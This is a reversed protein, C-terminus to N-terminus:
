ILCYTDKPEDELELAMKWSEALISRLENGEDQDESGDECLNSLTIDMNGKLKHICKTMQGGIGLIYDMGYVNSDCYPYMINTDKLEVILVCFFRGTYYNSMKSFTSLELDAFSKKEKIGNYPIYSMIYEQEPVIDSTDVMKVDENMTTRYEKVADKWTSEMHFRARVPVGQALLGVTNQYEEKFRAAFAYQFGIYNQGSQNTVALQWLIFVINSKLRLRRM